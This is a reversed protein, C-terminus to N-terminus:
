EDGIKYGDILRFQHEMQLTEGLKNRRYVIHFIRKDVEILLEFPITKILKQNNRYDFCRNETPAILIQIITLIKHKLLNCYNDINRNQTKMSLSYVLNFEKLRWLLRIKRPRSRGYKCFQKVLKKFNKSNYFKASIGRTKVEKLCLMTELSIRLRM